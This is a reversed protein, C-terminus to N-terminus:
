DINKTQSKTYGRVRKSWKKKTWKMSKGRSGMFKNRSSMQNIPRTIGCLAGKCNGNAHPGNCYWPRKNRKTEEQLLTKQYKEAGELTMWIIGSWPTNIMILTRQDELKVILGKKDDFLLEKVKIEM